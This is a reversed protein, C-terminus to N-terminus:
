VQSNYILRNLERRTVQTTFEALDALLLLGQEKTLEIHAETLVEDDTSTGIVTITFPGKGGDPQSISFGFRGYSQSKLGNDLVAM